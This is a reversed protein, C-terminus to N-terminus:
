KKVPAKREIHRESKKMKNVNDKFPDYHGDYLASGSINRVFNNDADVIQYTANKDLYTKISKGNHEETVKNKNIWLFEKGKTGPIRTMYQTLTQKKIIQKTITIPEYRSDVYQKLNEGRITFHETEDFNTLRLLKDKSVIGMIMDDKQSYLDNKEIWIYSDDDKNTRLMVEDRNEKVVQDKNIYLIEYDDSKKKDLVSNDLLAEKTLEEIIENKKSNSILTALEKYQDPYKEELEKLFQEDSLADMGSRKIYEELSEKGELENFRKAQLMTMVSEMSPADATHYMIHVINKDSASSYSPMETYYIGHKKALKEFQKLNEKSVKVFSINSDMKKLKKVANFSKVKGSRVRDYKMACYISKVLRGFMKLSEKSAIVGLRIGEMTISVIRTLDNIEEM